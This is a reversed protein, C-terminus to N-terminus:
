WVTRVLASVRRLSGVARDSYPGRAHIPETLGGVKRVDDSECLWRVTDFRASAASSRADWSSCVRLAAMEVGAAAITHAGRAGGM